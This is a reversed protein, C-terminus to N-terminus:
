AEQTVPVKPKKTTGSTKNRGFKKKEAKIRELLVSAPEDNPDQPVLQGSFASRLLAQKFLPLRAINADLDGELRDFTSLKEDLISVIQRQEKTSPLPITYRKLRSFEISEVTTGAKQCSYRIDRNLAITLYLVYKGEIGDQITLAKLDQNITFSQDLYATPLIRRLIGSRVVFLVSNSHIINASSSCVGENTIKDQSDKIFYSKMDKPTVWLINGNEWYKVEKKSPTGGGSWEGLQDLSAQSWTVPVQKENDKNLEPALPEKYKGKWKDDKPEKGQARMKELYDQEWKEKREKLIRELLVSAPELEQQHEERWEKTLEGTVAANLISMRYRRLKKKAKLLDETAADLDSFLEELKEVIRKQENLPPLPFHIQKLKTANVNQMAIGSSKETIANWYDPSQLFYYFFKKNVMSRFRILYSAFVSEEPNSILFSKGVSGARSIVIDGDNLLYKELIEPEKSCFPVSDWDLKGSTIDTTRLLRVDGSNSAKTTWGYQPPM